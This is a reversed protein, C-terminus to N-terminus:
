RVHAVLAAAIDHVPLVDSAGGQAVLTGPMGWVTATGAAEALTHGGRARLETMAAAGDAGMGTMLVGALLPAPIVRLASEVLRDVSPHWLHAASSPAPMAVIAQDRRALVIDCSGRGIYAHGALLPTTRRVESVDLACIRDLRQALAGTFSAPMHQAIVVPWPFDAPLATLVVDLAAPGGTSCGVIVVGQTDHQPAPTRSVIQPRTAFLATTRAATRARIRERLRLAPSIRARSATRVREVLDHALADIELSVAGNPKAIVDVAGLAMAELTERPRDPTMASIMVVPCPRHVMIQDLCALGDMDPMAIDLTIVDPAVTDLMALAEGGNRATVVEFGQAACLIQALLRRMLASDDIVLVKIM